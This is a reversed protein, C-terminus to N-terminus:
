CVASPSTASTFLQGVCYLVAAALWLLWLRIQRAQRGPRDADPEAPSPGTARMSAVDVTQESDIHDAVSQTM